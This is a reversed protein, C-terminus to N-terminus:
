PRPQAEVESIRNLVWGHDNPSPIAAPDGVAFWLVRGFEDTFGAIPNWAAQPPTSTGLKLWGNWPFDKLKVTRLFMPSSFGELADYAINEIGTSFGVNLYERRVTYGAVAARCGATLQRVVERELNAREAPDAIDGAQLRGVDAEVRAKIQPETAEALARYAHFWGSRVWRPGAWGNVLATEAAILRRVDLAYVVADWDAGEARWEPRVLGEAVAGVTRVKPRSGAAPWADAGAAFRAATAEALDVHHLYDGHLPTVPYPHAVLDGGKGAMARAVTGVIACASAADKALGSGPNARVVVLSGLSQVSAIDKQPSGAFSPADGVYAHLQGAGILVGAQQPEVAAIEIEHPYYSPYVPLEHGSRALPMLALAAAAIVLARRATV